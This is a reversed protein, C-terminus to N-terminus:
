DRGADTFPPKEFTLGDGMVRPDAAAKLKKM